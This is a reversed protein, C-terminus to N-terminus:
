GYRTHIVERAALSKDLISCPKGSDLLPATSINGIKSPMNFHEIKEFDDDVSAVMNDEGTSYDSEYLGTSSHLYNVPDEPHPEGEVTNVIKKLKPANRAKQKRCVKAFYNLLGCNNCIKRQCHLKIPPWPAYYHHHDIAKDTSTTQLLGFQLALVPPYQM